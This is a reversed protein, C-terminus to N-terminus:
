GIHMNAISSNSVGYSVLKTEALKHLQNREFLCHATNSEFRLDGAWARCNKVSVGRVHDLSMTFHNSTNHGRSNAEFHCGDILGVGRNNNTPGRWYIGGQNQQVHTGILQINNGNEIHIGHGGNLDAECRLFLVSEAVGGVGLSIGAGGYSEDPPEAVNRFSCNKFFSDNIARLDVLTDSSADVGNFTIGEAKISWVTNTSSKLLADGSFDRWWHIQTHNASAELYLFYPPGFGALDIPSGITVSDYFKLHRYGNNLAAIIGSANANGLPTDIIAFDSM